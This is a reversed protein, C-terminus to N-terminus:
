FTQLFHLTYGENKVFKRLNKNLSPILTAVILTWKLNSSTMYFGMKHRITELFIIAVFSFSVNKGNPM